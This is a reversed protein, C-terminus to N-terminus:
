TEKPHYLPKPRTEAARVKGRVDIEFAHGPAAHEAPLYAM